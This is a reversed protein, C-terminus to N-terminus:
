LGTGRSYDGANVLVLHRIGAYGSVSTEPIVKVVERSNNHRDTRGLAMANVSEALHRIPSHGTEPYQLGELLRNATYCGRRREEHRKLKLRERAVSCDQVVFKRKEPASGSYQKRCSPLNGAEGAARVGAPYLRLAM